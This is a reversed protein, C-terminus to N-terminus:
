FEKKKYIHEKMDMDAENGLHPATLPTRLITFPKLM